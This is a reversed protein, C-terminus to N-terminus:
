CRRWCAHRTSIERMAGDVRLRVILEREFPEIHIDSASLRLAESFIGNILRIVPAENEADM